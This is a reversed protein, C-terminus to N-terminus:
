GQVQYMMLDFTKFQCTASPKCLKVQCNLRVGETPEQQRTVKLEISELTAGEGLLGYMNALGTLAQVGKQLSDVLMNCIIASLTWRLLILLMILRYFNSIM